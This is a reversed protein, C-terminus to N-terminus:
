NVTLPPPTVPTKELLASAASISPRVIVPPLVLAPAPRFTRPPRTVSRHSSISDLLADDEPPPTRTSAPLKIAVFLVMALLEARKPAPSSSTSEEAIMVLQVIALLWLLPLEAALPM